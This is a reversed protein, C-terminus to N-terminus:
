SRRDIPGKGDDGDRQDLQEARLQKVVRHVDVLCCRGTPNLYECACQGGAVAAKVAAIITSRGRHEWFDATLDEVTHAFCFCVPMPKGAAKSGVQATVVDHDVFSTGLFFVM